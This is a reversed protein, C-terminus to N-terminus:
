EDLRDGLVELLRNLTYEAADNLAFDAFKPSRAMVDALRDRIENERELPWGDPTGQREREILRLAQRLLVAPDPEVVAGPQALADIGVGFLKAVTALDTVSINREGNEYRNYTSPKVGLYKAVDSQSLGVAERAHALRRGLADSGNQRPM